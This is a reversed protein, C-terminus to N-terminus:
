NPLIKLRRVGDLVWGSGVGVTGQIKLNLWEGIHTM